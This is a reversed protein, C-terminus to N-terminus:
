KLAHAEIRCLKDENDVYDSEGLCYCRCSAYKDTVTLLESLPGGHDSIGYSLRVLLPQGLSWQHHQGHYSFAIAERLYNSFSHM